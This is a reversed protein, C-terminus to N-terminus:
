RVAGVGGQQQVCELGGKPGVTVERAQVALQLYPDPFGPRHLLM